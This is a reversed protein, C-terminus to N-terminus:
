FARHIIKLINARPRPSVLACKVVVFCSVYAAEAHRPFLNVPVVATTNPTTLNHGSFPSTLHTPSERHGGSSFGSFGVALTYYIFAKIPDQTDAVLWLCIAPVLQSTATLIKRSRPVSIGFRNILLDAARGGFGSAVTYLLFPLVSSFGSDTLSM